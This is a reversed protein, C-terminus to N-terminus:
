GPRNIRFLQGRLNPVAMVALHIRMAQGPIDTDLKCVIIGAHEIGQRHLRLFDRRDFTLVARGESTALELVQSDPFRESARGREQMTAVDHGLRRLSEVLPMPFNEDAFLRAVGIV